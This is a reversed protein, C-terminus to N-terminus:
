MNIIIQAPIQIWIKIVGNLEDLLLSKEQKMIARLFMKFSM